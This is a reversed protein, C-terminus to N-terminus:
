KVAAATIFEAIFSPANTYDKIQYEAQEALALNWPQNIQVGPIAALEPLWLRVYEGQPDYEM